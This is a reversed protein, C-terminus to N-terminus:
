EQGISAHRLVSFPLIESEQKKTKPSFWRCEAAQPGHPLHVIKEITMIHGGGGKFQVKDGPKFATM